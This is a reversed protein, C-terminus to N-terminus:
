KAEYLSGGMGIEIKLPVTIGPIDLMCRRVMDEVTEVESVHTELILEDHVQLIMRSRMNCDQLSRYVKVMALKIIDAATGQLPANMAARKGFERTNHDQASLEPIYRRRRFLTEVYGQRRATDVLEDLYKKVRPYRNFYEDIYQQALKVPIGLDEALGFDSIGYIIGFNVAKAARRMDPTVMREDVHFVDAATKKHIDDGSRFAELMGQDESFQALLRLEIQSYDAIVLLFDEGEAVFAKRIERGIDSRIPLNQMNPETSSIRGTAAVTQRFNSHIRGDPGIRELLGDAYTNKLKALRRYELVLHAIYHNSSLKRLVESSTSHGTKNKKFSPMKLEEFFIKGLQQPSNLNFEKKSLFYIEKQVHLIKLDLMQSFEELYARDARFGYYEMRALIEILPLEIDYLLFTMGNSRIIEDLRQALHYVMLPATGQGVPCDSSVGVHAYFLGELEYSDRSSDLVYGCAATDMAVKPIRLGCRMLYLLFDKLYHGSITTAAEMLIGLCNKLIDGEMSWVTKGDVSYYLIDNRFDVYVHEGMVMEERSTVSLVVSGIQEKRADDLGFRPILTRFQLKHFLRILADRDISTRHFRSLRDDIYLDCRLRSLERSLYADEKGERLKQVLGPKGIVSLNEYIGDLDHFRRVLDLAMKDGIGRVGPIHDSSDGTLAKVDLYQQPEIGFELLFSEMTYEKSVSKGQSTTPIIVKCRPSILQLMDRDGTVLVREMSEEPDLCALSALIDDAEFGEQELVTIGLARILEKAIPFQPILETPIPKRGSKYGDYMAHRFTPQKTDFAVAAHSPNLSDLYKGLISAFGFVANTSIGDSTRLMSDGSLGYFARNLLSNGDILLFIGM